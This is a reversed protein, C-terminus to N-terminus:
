VLLVISDTDHKKAASEAVNSDVLAWKSIRSLEQAINHQSSNFTDQKSAVTRDKINTNILNLDTSSYYSNDCIPSEQKPAYINLSMMNCLFHQSNKWGTSVSLLLNDLM